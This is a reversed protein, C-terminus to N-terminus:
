AKCIRASPVRREQQFAPPALLALTPPSHKDTRPRSRCPLPPRSARIQGAPPALPGTPLGVNQNSLVILQASSSSSQSSYNGDGSTYTATITYTGPTGISTNLSVGVAAPTGTAFNGGTPTYTATGPLATGNALFTVTGTPAAGYSPPTVVTVGATFTQGAFVSVPNNLVGVNPLTTAAPNVTIVVSKSSANYSTDGSYNAVVTDTGGPLQASQDETYGFSNLKFSGGDIPKGNNTFTVTGTPCAIEGQSPSTCFESQSNQLDARIWYVDTAGTGYTATTSYTPNGNQDTGTVVGPMYVVSNEPNVTLTSSSPSYSGGFTTNGAYHAIVQYSGGPLLNTNWSITGGSLTNWDIGANGPTGPAVLLAVDGSPTGSGSQPAVTVKVSVAAGHTVNVPSGGNLTLTTTSPTFTVKNWNTVLVNADVSGLGSALDYGANTSYGNLVGYTKGNSTCDGTSGPSVLSLM